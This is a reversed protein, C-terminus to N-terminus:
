PCAALCRSCYVRYALALPLM